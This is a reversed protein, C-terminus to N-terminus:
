IALLGFEQLTNWKGGLNQEILSIKKFQLKNPLQIKEIEEYLENTCSSNRPHMLTIHPSANKINQIVPQLIIARLSHFDKNDGIAPLLVGKGNSFRTAEGFDIVISNHKLKKLGEIIKEIHELEDEKCLTVHCKILAYQEPNFQKRIDEIAASENVDAFLTLQIRKKIM